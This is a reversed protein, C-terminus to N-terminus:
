GSSRGTMSATAPSPIAITSEAVAVADASALQERDVAELRGAPEVRRAM